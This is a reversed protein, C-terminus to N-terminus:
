RRRHQSISKNEYQKLLRGIEIEREREMKQNKAANGSGEWKGLHKLLKKMNLKKSYRNWLRKFEEEGELDEMAQLQTIVEKKRELIQSVEEEIEEEYESKLNELQKVEEELEELDREKDKTAQFTRIDEHRRGTIEKSIGREFGLENFYLNGLDQVLSGKKSRSINLANGKSDFNDMYYQFHPLGREDLDFTIYHVEVGLERCMNKITEVGLAFIKEQSKETLDKISSSFTLVGDALSHVRKKHLSIDKSERLRRKHEEQREKFKNILENGIKRREEKSYDNVEINDEGAFWYMNKKNHNPNHLKVKKGDKLGMVYEQNSAIKIMRLSHKIAAKMRIFNKSEIRINTYQKKM